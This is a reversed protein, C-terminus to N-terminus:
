ENYQTWADFKNKGFKVGSPCIKELLIQGFNPWSKADFKLELIELM